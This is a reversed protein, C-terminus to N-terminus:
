RPLNTPRQGIDMPSNTHTVPVYLWLIKQYISSMMNKRQSEKSQNWLNYTIENEAFATPTQVDEKM